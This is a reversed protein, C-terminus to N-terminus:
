NSFLGHVSRTRSSTIQARSLTREAKGLGFCRVIKRLHPRELALDLLATRTNELQDVFMRVRKEALGTKVLPHHLERHPILTKLHLHEAKDIHQWRESVGVFDNLV